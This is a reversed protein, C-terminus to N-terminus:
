ADTPEDVWESDAWQAISDSIGFEEDLEVPIIAKVETATQPISFHEQLGNSDHEGCFMM